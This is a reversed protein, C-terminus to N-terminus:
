MSGQPPTNRGVLVKESGYQGKTQVKKVYRMLRRQLYNKTKRTGQRM